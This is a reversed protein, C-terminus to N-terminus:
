ATLKGCKLRRMQSPVKNPKELKKVINIENIRTGLSGSPFARDGL